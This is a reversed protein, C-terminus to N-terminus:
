CGICRGGISPSTITVGSNGGIDFSNTAVVTTGSFNIRNLAAWSIVSGSAVTLITGGSADNGRLIMQSSSSGAWNIANTITMASVFQILAAGVNLTDITTAGTFGVNAGNTRSAVTVTAYSQGTGTVFGQGNGNVPAAIVITSTNKTFTLNTVITADWVNNNNSTLTMTGSGMRLTRTGTGTLSFTGATVSNNNVSLDLICGTTSATCAGMAISQITPNTNVTITCTVGGVCTAADLIVADGSGPVSAGTGGGSITSWMATSSNDWTCTVTCVAFRNAAEALNPLLLFGLLFLIRIM